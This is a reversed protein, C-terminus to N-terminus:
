KILNIFSTKSLSEALVALPPNGIFKTQIILRPEPGLCKFSHFRDTDLVYVDGTVVRLEDTYPVEEYNVISTDRSYVGSISSRYANVSSLKNVPEDDYWRVWDEQNSSLAINLASKCNVGDRHITYGSGVPSYFGKQVPREPLLDNAPLWPIKMETNVFYELFKDHLFKDFHIHQYGRNPNKRKLLEEKFFNIFSEPLRGLKLYNM